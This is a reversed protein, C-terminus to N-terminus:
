TKLIILKLDQRVFGELIGDGRRKFFGFHLTCGVVDNLLYVSVHEIGTAEKKVAM